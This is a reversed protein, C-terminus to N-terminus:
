ARLYIRGTRGKEKAVQDAYFARLKLLEDVSMRKLSRGAISYEQQDMTARNAMVADIADLAVRAQSRTDVGAALTTSAARITLEGRDVTYREAAKEVFATWGYEGVAWSLTTAALVTVRHDDGSAVSTLDIATGAARPALRYKLVWGASALYDPVSTTFDLTDGATLVNNLTTTM